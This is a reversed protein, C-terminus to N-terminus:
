KTQSFTFSQIWDLGDRFINYFTYLFYNFEQKSDFNLATGLYFDYSILWLVVVSATKM